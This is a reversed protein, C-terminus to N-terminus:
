LIGSGAEPAIRGPGAGEIATFEAWVPLFPSIQVAKEYSLNYKRLFDAVGSKGTFESTAQAPFLIGCSVSQGAVDTPIDRTALRVADSQLHPMRAPDSAFDGLLIVDDERRGDRVVAQILNPLIAQEAAANERHILVNILSFTFSEEVSPGKGRFWAVLPEYFILDEPDDVTYLQYRDTETTTTDFVFAFQQRASGRGIRPGILYDYSRGSQNLREILTPLIDDRQSQIGQLAVIDFQRIIGLIVEVIHPQNLRVEDLTSLNWTAIRLKPLRSDSAFSSTANGPSVRDDKKTTLVTGRDETPVLRQTGPRSRELESPLPLPLQLPMQPPMELPLQASGMASSRTLESFKETLKDEILALKEGANLNPEWPPLTDFVNSSNPSSPNAASKLNNWQSGTSFAPDSSAFDSNWGLSGASQSDSSASRPTLKLQDLGVVKYNKGVYVLAAISAILFLWRKDLHM